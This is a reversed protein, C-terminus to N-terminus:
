LKKTIVYYIVIMYIIVALFPIYWEIDELDISIKWVKKVILYLLGILIFHALYLGLIFYLLEM